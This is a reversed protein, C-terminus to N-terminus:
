HRNEEEDAAPIRLPTAHTTERLTRLAARSGTDRWLEFAHLPALKRAPEGLVRMTQLVDMLSVFTDALHHYMAAASHEMRDSLQQYASRGLDVFYSIKVRRREAREPFLGSYLLCKDGVNRLQDHGIRGSAQMSQLYEVALVSAALETQETFRMLLFVLYSQMEEDLHLAAAAEAEHVLSLWEATASTHILLEPM